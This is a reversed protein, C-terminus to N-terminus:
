IHEHQHNLSMSSDTGMLWQKKEGDTDKLLEHRELIQKRQGWIRVYGDGRGCNSCREREDKMTDLM